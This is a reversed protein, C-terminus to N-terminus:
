YQQCLCPFVDLTIYTPSQFCYEIARLSQAISSELVQIYEIRIIQLFRFVKHSFRKSGGSRPIFYLIRCKRDHARANLRELSASPM